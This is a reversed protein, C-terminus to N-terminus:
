DLHCIEALYDRQIQRAKQESPNNLKLLDVMVRGTPTRGYIRLKDRSLRFHQSWDDSRPNFLPVIRGTRQDLAETITGKQLNCRRCALALNSPITPGDKARPIIHEIEFFTEGTLILYRKCYECRGDARAEVFSRLQESRSAM